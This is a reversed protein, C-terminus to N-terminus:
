DSVLDIFSMTWGFTWTDSMLKQLMIKSAWFTKVNQPWYFIAFTHELALKINYIM